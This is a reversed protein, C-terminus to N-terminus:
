FEFTMSIPSHLPLRRVLVKQLQTTQKELREPPIFLRNKSRPVTMQKTEKHITFKLVTVILVNTM